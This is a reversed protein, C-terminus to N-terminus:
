RAGALPVISPQEFRALLYIGAGELGGAHCRLPTVQLSVREGYAAGGEGLAEGAFRRPYQEEGATIWLELSTRALREGSAFTTSLRPDDVPIPGEPDLLTAAIRDAEHGPARQPRLAHLAVGRDPGFWGAVSRLSHLDTGEFDPDLSRTGLCDITREAGSVTITGTVACLEDEDTATATAAVPTPDPGDDPARAERPAVLLDFGSGTVRWRNAETAFRVRGHGAAAESATDAGFVIAPEDGELAAGWVNGELDGFAVLRLSGPQGASM